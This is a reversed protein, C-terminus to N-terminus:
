LLRIQNPDTSTQEPKYLPERDDGNEQYYIILAEVKALEEEVSDYEEELSQKNEKLDDIEEVILDLADDIQKRRIEFNHRDRELEDL